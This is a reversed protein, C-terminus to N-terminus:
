QELLSRQKSIVFGARLGIVLVKLLCTRRVGLNLLKGIVYINYGKSKHRTLLFRLQVRPRTDWLM